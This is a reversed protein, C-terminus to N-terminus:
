RHLYGHKIRRVRQDFSSPLHWTLANLEHTLHSQDTFGSEAALSAWDTAETDLLAVTASRLRRLRAFQKATLGVARIFRRQLQRESLEVAAAIAEVKARGRSREILHAAAVAKRDLLDRDPTGLVRGFALVAASFSNSGDLEHLLAQNLNANVDACLTATDRLLGPECGIVARCAAPQLRVGWWVEGPAISVVRPRVTPGIVRISRSTKESKGCYSLLSCGDPFVYHTSAYPLNESVAFEWYALVFHALGRPPLSERYRM